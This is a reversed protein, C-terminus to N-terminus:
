FVKFDLIGLAIRIRQQSRNFHILGNVIPQAIGGLDDVLSMTLKM